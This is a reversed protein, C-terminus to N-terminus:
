TPPQSSRREVRSPTASPLEGRRREKFWVQVQDPRACGMTFLLFM